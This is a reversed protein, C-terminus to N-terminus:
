APRSWYGSRVHFGHPCAPRGPSPSKRNTLTSPKRPESRLMRHGALAVDNLAIQMGKVYITTTPRIPWITSFRSWESDNRPM